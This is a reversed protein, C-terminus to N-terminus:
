IRLAIRLPPSVVAHSASAPKIVSTRAFPSHPVDLSQPVGATASGRKAEQRVFATTAALVTRCSDEGTVLASTTADQHQCASTKTEEPHCWVACIVAANPAIALTLVISLVAARFV